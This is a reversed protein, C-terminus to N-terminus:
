TKPPTEADPEIPVSEEITAMVRVKSDLQLYRDPVTVVGDKWQFDKIAMRDVFVQITAEPPIKKELKFNFYRELVYQYKVNVDGIQASDCSFTLIRGEVKVDEICSTAGGTARVVVSDELPDQALEQSLVDTSDGYNYEMVLKRGEVVDEGDFIILDNEIKYPVEADTEPDFVDFRKPNPRKEPIPYSNVKPNKELYELDLEENDPPPEALEISRTSANYSWDAVPKGRISVNKVANEVPIDGVPFQILLPTDKRYNVKVQARDLPRLPFYLKKGELVFDSNAKNDITVDITNEAVPKALIVQDFRPVPGSRFEVKLKIQDGRANKLTVKRGQISIDSTLAGDIDVKITGPVPDLKLDFENRIVRSVDKSVVELLPQYDNTVPSNDLCLSREIGNFAQIVKSYRQSYTEVGADRRCQPNHSGKGAVDRNWLLGYAKLEGPKRLSNMLSILEDPGWAVGKDDKCAADCENEEDSVFFVGLVSDKRIWSNNGTPCQGLLHQMVTKIGMEDRSGSTGLGKVTQEFNVLADTDDKRIPKMSRAANHLNCEDTTLIGIQWDVNDMHKTLAKLNEGLEQQEEGMSGSNDIILLLDLKGAASIDFEQTITDGDHGQLFIEAVKERDIQRIKAKLLPKEKLTLQDQIIGYQPKYTTEMDGILSSKFEQDALVRVQIKDLSRGSFDVKSECALLLLCNIYILTKM